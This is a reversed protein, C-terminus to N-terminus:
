RAFDSADILDRDLAEVFAKLGDRMEELERRRLAESIEACQRDLLLDFERAQENTVLVQRWVGCEGCRLEILWHDPGSTEWEMPCAFPRHCQSCRHLADRTAFTRLTEVFRRLHSLESMGVDSRM